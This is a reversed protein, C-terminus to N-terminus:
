CGRLGMSGDSGWASSAGRCWALPRLGWRSRSPRRASSRRCGPSCPAGTSRSPSCRSRSATLDWIPRRTATARFDEPRVYLVYGYGGRGDAVGNSGYVNVRADLLRRHVEVLAGLRDEGQVLLAKQPGTLCMGIKTASKEFRAPDEPFLVFQTQASTLPISPRGPLTVERARPRRRGYCAAAPARIPVHVSGLLSVM